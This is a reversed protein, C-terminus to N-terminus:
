RGIARRPDPLPRQGVLSAREAANAGAIWGSGDSASASMAKTEGLADVAAKVAADRSALVPLVHEGHERVAEAVAADHTTRLRAGITRAFGLLYARRFAAKRGPWTSLDSSAIRLGSAAQLTLSGYLLAATEVDSRYGFMTATGLGSWWISRCGCAHAVESLLVFKARAYPDDIFIRRARVGDRPIRALVLRDIAYRDMLEYAKATLAQAEAPFTTSEAKALLARVRAVVAPDVDDADPDEVVPLPPLFELAVVLFLAVRLADSEPIGRKEAWRAPGDEL